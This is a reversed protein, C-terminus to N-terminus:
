DGEKITYEMINKLTNINDKLLKVIMYLEYLMEDDFHLDCSECDVYVNNKEFDVIVPVETEYIDFWISGGCIHITIDQEKTIIERIEQIINNM